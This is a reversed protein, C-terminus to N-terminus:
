NSNKYSKYQKIVKMLFDSLPFDYRFWRMHCMKAWGDAIDIDPVRMSLEADLNIYPLRFIVKRDDPHLKKYGRKRIEFWPSGCYSPIKKIEKNYFDMFATESEFWKCKKKNHINDPTAIAYSVLVADSNDKFMQYEEKSKKNPMDTKDAVYIYGLNDVWYIEGDKNYFKIPKLKKIEKPTVIFGQPLKEDPKNDFMDCFMKPNSMTWTIPNMRGHCDWRQYECFDYYDGDKDTSLKVLIYSAYHPFKYVERGKYDHAVMQSKDKIRQIYELFSMDTYPTIEIADRFSKKVDEITDAYIPMEGYPVKVWWRNTM